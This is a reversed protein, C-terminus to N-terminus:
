KNKVFLFMSFSIDAMNYKETALTGVLFFHKISDNILDSMSPSYDRLGSDFEVKVKKSGM